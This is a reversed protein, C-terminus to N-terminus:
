IISICIVHWCSESDTILSYLSTKMRDHKRKQNAEGLKGCTRRRRELGNVLARFLIISIFIVHCCRALDTRLSVCEIKGKFVIETKIQEAASGADKVELCACAKCCVSIKISLFMLNDDCSLKKGLPLAVRATARRNSLPRCAWRATPLHYRAARAARRGAGARRITRQAGLAVALPHVPERWALRAAAPPHM